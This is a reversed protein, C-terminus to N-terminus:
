LDRIWMNKFMNLCVISHVQIEILSFCIFDISFANRSFSNNAPFRVSTHAFIAHSFINDENFNRAGNCSQSNRTQNKCVLGRYVITVSTV